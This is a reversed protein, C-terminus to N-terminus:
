GDEKDKALEMLYYTRGAALAAAISDFWIGESASGFQECTDDLFHINWIYREPANIPEDRVVLRYHQHLLESHIIDSRATMTLGRAEAQAEM